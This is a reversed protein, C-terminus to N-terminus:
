ASKPLVEYATEKALKLAALLEKGANPNYGRAVYSPHWTAIYGRHKKEILKGREFSDLYRDIATRGLLVVVRPKILKMEQYLYRRTCRTVEFPKPTRNGPPRCKAINTIYVMDLMYLEDLLENLLQGAPGMFPKATQAEAEGPAEGVLM